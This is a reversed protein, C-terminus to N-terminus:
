VGQKALEAYITVPPLSRTVSVLLCYVTDKERFSPLGRFSISYYYKLM